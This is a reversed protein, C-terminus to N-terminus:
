KNRDYHFEVISEVNSCKEVNPQTRSLVTSLHIVPALEQLYGLLKWTRFSFGFVWCFGMLCWFTFFSGQYFGFGPSWCKLALGIPFFPQITVESSNRCHWRSWTEGFSFHYIHKQVYLVYMFCRIRLIIDILDLRRISTVIATIFILFWTEVHCYFGSSM